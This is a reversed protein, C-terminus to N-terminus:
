QWVETLWQVWAPTFLLATAPAGEAPAPLSVGLTRRQADVPDYFHIAGGVIGTFEPCGPTFAETMPTPAPLTLACSGQWLGGAPKDAPYGFVTAVVEEGGAPAAFGLWGLTEGLPTALTVVAPGAAGDPHAPSLTASAWPWIAPPGDGDGAGDIGPVFLIRDPWGRGPDYVCAAATLVTAPGILAGTCGIATAGHVAHVMGVARAPFADAADLQRRGWDDPAGRAASPARVSPAAGSAARATGPELLALVAASAPGETMRGDADRRLTGYRRAPAIAEEAAAVPPLVALPLRREPL